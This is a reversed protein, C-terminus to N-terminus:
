STKEGKGSKQADVESALSISERSRRRATPADGVTSSELTPSIQLPPAALAERATAYRVAGDGVAFFGGPYMVLAPHELCRWVHGDRRWSLGEETAIMCHVWTPSTTV